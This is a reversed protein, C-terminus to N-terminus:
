VPPRLYRPELIMQDTHKFEPLGLMALASAEPYAVPFGEVDYSFWAIDKDGVGPIANVNEVMGEELLNPAGNDMRFKAYFYSNKRANLITGRVGSGQGKVRSGTGRVEVVMAALSNFKVVSRPKPLLLGLLTAFGCRLGNYSGPGEGIVFGDIEQLGLGASKLAKEICPVLLVSANGIEDAQSLIQHDNAVAVSIQPSSTDLALIKM